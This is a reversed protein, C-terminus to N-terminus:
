NTLTKLTSSVDHDRCDQPKYDLFLLSKGMADSEYKYSNHVSCHPLEPYQLLKDLSTKRPILSECFSKILGLLLLPKMLVLKAVMQTRLFPQRKKVAAPTLCACPFCLIPAWRCCIGSGGAQGERQQTTGACRNHRKYLFDILRHM